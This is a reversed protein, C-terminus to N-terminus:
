FIDDGVLGHEIANTRTGSTRRNPATRRGGSQALLLTGDLESTSNPRRDSASVGSTANQFSKSECQTLPYTRESIRPGPKAPNSEYCPFIATGPIQRQM